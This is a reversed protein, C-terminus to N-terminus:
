CTAPVNLLWGVVELRWQALRENLLDRWQSSGAQGGWTGGNVAAQRAAGLGEMSQQRGPRGLDRWQSSGAQGGWTGGNVAPRGLDRWQSSGAQGGWTGGNVAPRGLDRWQSSGAQGGWTGGNVAAQRAAGLEEMSQQRGPQGAENLQGRRVQLAAWHATDRGTNDGPVSRQM